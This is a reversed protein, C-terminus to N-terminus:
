HSSRRLTFSPSEGYVAAYRRAFRGRHAFGLETAIAGVRTTAPDADQLKRHAAQLARMRLFEGPTTDMAERFATQLRRESVGIERCLTLMPVQWLESQTLWDVVDVVLEKSEWRRRPRPGALQPIECAARVGAELLVDFGHDPPVVSTSTASDGFLHALPDGPRRARVHQRGAPSPDIGLQDAAVVFEDWPVVLMGFRLGEPDAAVHSSGPPYVFTQGAELETRDWRGGEPADLMHCLILHDGVSYAVGSMPFGFDLLALHGKEVARVSVNTAGSGQGLRVLAGDAGPVSLMFDDGDVAADVRTDAVRPRDQGMARCYPLM